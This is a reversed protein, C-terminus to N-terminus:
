EMFEDVMGRLMGKERDAEKKCKVARCSSKLGGEISGNRYVTGRKGEKGGGGDLLLLLLCCCCCCSGWKMGEEDEDGGFVEEKLLLVRFGMM